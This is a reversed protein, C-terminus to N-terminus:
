QVPALTATFDMYDGDPIDMGSSYNNFLENLEDLEADMRFVKLNVQDGERLSQIIQILDDSSNTRHGNAEVIIDFQHIGAEEASSDADVKTILVGEPVAQQSYLAYSGASAEAVPAIYIGLKPRDDEVASDENNKEENEPMQPTEIEGSIVKEILPKADNIAICMGIGDITSRNYLQGSYKLTPIGVLEGLVNFMGGGSNGSNIAADVQIMTNNDSEYSRGYEDTISNTISRNLASVVGVTTTGYFEDSLPNGICIAWDGVQLTSSDGLSVPNLKKAVDSQLIAIDLEPDSAVLQADYETEDILIKWYEGNEVVHYNTLIHGQNSIVVGSGGGIQVEQTSQEPEPARRYDFGFFYNFPNYNSNSYTVTGYNSVGVVSARVAQVADTFPSSVTGEIKTALQVAEAQASPSNVNGAILTVGAGIMTFTLAIAIYPLTKKWFNKM